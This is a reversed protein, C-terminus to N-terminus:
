TKLAQPRLGFLFRLINVRRILAVTLVMLPLSIALMIALKPLIGLDATCVYFAVGVLLPEHVIYFPLASDGLLALARSPRNLRKDAASLVAIIIGWAYISVPSLALLLNDITFFLVAATIAALLALVLGAKAHRHIAQRFGEHSAFLFGYLLFIIYSFM